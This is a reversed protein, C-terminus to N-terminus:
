GGSLKVTYGASELLTKIRERHDGQIEINEGKVAGGGACASKLKKTIAKLQEKPIGSIVSVAKGGRGKTERQIRVIGDSPTSAALPSNPQKIRGTETSYVLNSNKKM